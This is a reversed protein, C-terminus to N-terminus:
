EGTAITGNGVEFEAVLHAKTTVLSLLRLCRRRFMRIFWFLVGVNKAVKQMQRKRDPHKDESVESSGSSHIARILGM